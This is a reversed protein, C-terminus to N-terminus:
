YCFAAGTPKEWYRVPTRAVNPLGGDLLPSQNDTEGFIALLLM